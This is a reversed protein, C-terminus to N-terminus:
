NEYELFPDAMTIKAAEADSIGAYLTATGDAHRQIGGSFIIDRLEPRKASGAPFYKRSGIIKPPTREGTHADFAFVMPYYHKEDDIYAIHGLVGVNGNSLLHAENAGGWEDSKFQGEFLPAEQIIEATLVDFSNVIAFGIKGLRASDGQPRSFVGIRGDTLKIFRIDKMHDPGTLFLQLIELTTGRYFQMRWGRRGNELIVPFEVGGFVIENGVRTVCPDQLKPYTPTNPRPRWIGNEEIFFVSESLQMERSEVRGAIITEDGVQFPATINYVDSGDVGDFSFKQANKLTGAHNQEFAALLQKVSLPFGTTM